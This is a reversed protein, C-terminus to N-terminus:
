YELIVVHPNMNSVSSTDESEPDSYGSLFTIDNLTSMLSTLSTFNGGSALSDGV